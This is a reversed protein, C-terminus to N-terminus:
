GAYVVDARKRLFGVGAGIAISCAGDRQAMNMRTMRPWCKHIGVCEGGLRGGRETARAAAGGMRRELTPLKPGIANAMPGM